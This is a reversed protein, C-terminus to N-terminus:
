YEGDQDPRTGLELKKGLVEIVRLCTAIDTDNISALLRGRVELLAAEVRAALEDGAPTLHLNKARRDHSDDRREVLGQACLQDLLRVLSPGKIGIEEALINQRIGGGYRSIHLVPVAKAHSIGYFSLARNVEERYLRAVRVLNSTLQRETGERHSTM